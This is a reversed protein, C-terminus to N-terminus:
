PQEQAINNQPLCVRFESIIAYFIAYHIIAQFFFENQQGQSPHLTLLLNKEKSGIELGVSHRWMFM